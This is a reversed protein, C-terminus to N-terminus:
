KPLPAIGKSQHNFLSKYAPNSHYLESHSGSGAISGDKLYIIKDANIVNYLRHTIMITIRDKFEEHLADFILRETNVDLESTAEDLIIIEPKKLAVRAIALRQREGGSLRVGREGVETEFGKPLSLIFDYLGAIKAAQIMEEESANVNGIRINDAMTGSFIFPMQLVIGIRQRLDKTKINEINIGNILIAGDTPRYFKLLLNILTTKGSGSKGIIAIKERHNIQLNIDKIIPKTGNYSFVINKYLISEIKINGCNVN